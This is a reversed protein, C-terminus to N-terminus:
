CLFVIDCFSCLLVTGTMTGAWQFLKWIIEIHFLQLLSEKLETVAQLAKM